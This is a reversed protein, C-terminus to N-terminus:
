SCRGERVSILRTGSGVVVAFPPVDRTIVAGAGIVAQEGVTVGGLVMAGAGIWAGRRVIIPSSRHPYPLQQNLDVGATEILAGESIRVYDELVVRSHAGITVRPGISVNHGISVNQRYKFVTSTSM